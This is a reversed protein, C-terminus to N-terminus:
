EDKGLSAERGGWGWVHGWQVSTERLPIGEGALVQLM